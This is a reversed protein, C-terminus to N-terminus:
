EAQEETKLSIDVTKDGDATPYTVTLIGEKSLAFSKIITGDEAVTLGALTTVSAYVEPGFAECVFVHYADTRQDVFAVQTDWAALYGSFGVYQETQVNCFRAWRTHLGDGRQGYAILLEDSIADFSVPKDLRKESIFTSGSRGWVEYSYTENAHETYSYSDAAKRNPDPQPAVPGNDDDTAANGCGGLLLAALLALPIFKKIFMM